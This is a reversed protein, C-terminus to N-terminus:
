WGMATLVLSLDGLTTTVLARYPVYYGTDGLPAYWILIRGSDALYATVASTTFHGSIPRYDASCLVVPGQYGTRPSTAVDEGAPTLVLDFREVGTFVRLTRDCLSQNLADGRIVFGAVADTVNNLQSREIPVRDPSPLLPPEVVFSSVDDAAFGVRVDFDEGNASTSLSFTQPLLGAATSSGQSQMAASGSAVVQGLGAVAADLELDYTSGNDVFGAEVTAINIGGLSLVYRLGADVPAASVALSTVLAVTGAALARVLFPAIM